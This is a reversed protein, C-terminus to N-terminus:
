LRHCLSTIQTYIIFTFTRGPFYSPVVRTESLSFLSFPSIKLLSIDLFLLSLYGGCVAVSVALFIFIEKAKEELGSLSSM